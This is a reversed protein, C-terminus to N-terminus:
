AIDTQLMCVVHCRGIAPSTSGDPRRNCCKDAPHLVYLLQWTTRHCQSCHMPLRQAGQHCHIHGAAAPRRQQPPLSRRPAAWCHQHSHRQAAHWESERRGGGPSGAIATGMVYMNGPKSAVVACPFAHTCGLNRFTGEPGRAWCHVYLWTNYRGAAPPAM